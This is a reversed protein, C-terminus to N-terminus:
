FKEECKIEIDKRTYPDTFIMKRFHLKLTEGDEIGYLKDGVIPHNISALHVRIQHKRGHKINVVVKSIKGNNIVRYYSESTKGSNTIVQKNSHRDRGIKSNIMGEKEKFHNHCLCVYEKVVNHAEIEGSLYALALPNKAFLVIGTTDYDIRHVPYVFPHKNSKSLYNYTANTLTEYTNGDSHILIGQPKEVAIINDDEYLVNIKIKYPIMNVETEIDLELIDNVKLIMKSDLIINDNLKIQKNSFWNNIIHKGVHFSELYDFAPMNNFQELIKIKM